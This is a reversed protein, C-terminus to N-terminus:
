TRLFIFKSFDIFDIIKKYYYKKTWKLSLLIKVNFILHFIDNVFLVSKIINHSLTLHALELIFFAFIGNFSSKLLMKDLFQDM